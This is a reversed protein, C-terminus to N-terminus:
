LGLSVALGDGTVTAKASAEKLRKDDRVKREALALIRSGHEAHALRRAILDDAGLEQAADGDGITVTENKTPFKVNHTKLVQTVEAKAIMRAAGQVPDRTPASVSRVWLTGDYMAAIKAACYEAEWGDVIARNEDRYAALQVETVSEVKGDEGVIARKTKGLVSASCENHVIHGIARALLRDVVIPNIKGSDIEYDGVKLITM